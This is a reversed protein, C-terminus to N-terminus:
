IVGKQRMRDVVLWASGVVAFLFGFTRTAGDGTVLLIAGLCTFVFVIALGLLRLVRDTQM